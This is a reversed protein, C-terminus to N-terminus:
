VKALLPVVVRITERPHLWVRTEPDPEDAAIIEGGARQVEAVTPTRELAALEAVPLLLLARVDGPELPGTPNALFTVVHDYPGTPLGDEFPVDPLAREWREVLLPPIGPGCAIPRPDGGEEVLWTAPAPVLEVPVGVEELAERAATDWITEGVEQGGGVGGARLAPAPVDAPVHDDNLTLVLRDGDLLVVGACFPEHALAALDM